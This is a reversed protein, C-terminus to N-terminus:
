KKKEVEQVFVAIAELKTIVLRDGVKVKELNKPNRPTVTVIGGGDEMKLNATKAAKDIAMITANVTTETGKVGGPKEGPKARSMVARDGEKPFAEGKKLVRVALSEYYAFKVVDGVNVQFLNKVEDSAKFTVSNGDPGKLTVMRTLQDVAEVTATKEVKSATQWYPSEETGGSKVAPEAAWGGAAISLIFLGALFAFRPKKM